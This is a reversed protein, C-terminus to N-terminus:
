VPLSSMTQDLDQHQVYGAVFSENMDSPSQNNRPRKKESVITNKAHWRDPVDGIKCSDGTLSQM